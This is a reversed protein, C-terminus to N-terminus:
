APKLMQEIQKNINELFAIISRKDKWLFKRRNNPTHQMFFEIYIANESVEYGILKHKNLLHIIYERANMKRVKKISISSFVDEADEQTNQQEDKPYIVQIIEEASLGEDISTQFPIPEIHNDSLYENHTDVIDGYYRLLLKVTNKPLNTRQQIISSDIRTKYKILLDIEQKILKKEFELNEM